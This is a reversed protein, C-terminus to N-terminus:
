KRRPGPEFPKVPPPIEDRDQGLVALCYAAIVAGFSCIAVAELIRMLITM